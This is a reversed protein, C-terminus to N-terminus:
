YGVITQGDARLRLQSYITSNITDNLWTVSGDAMSFFAGNRHNSSAIYGVDYHISAFNILVTTSNGYTGHYSHSLGTHGCCGGALPAILWIGGDMFNCTQLPSFCRKAPVNTSSRETLLITKSLGDPVRRFPLAAANWYPYSIGDGWYLDYTLGNPAKQRDTVGSTGMGGNVGPRGWFTFSHGNNKSGINIGYNTRGFGTNNDRRRGYTPNTPCEFQRNARKALTDVTTQGDNWHRTFNNTAKGVEDYIAASDCFPLIIASWPLGPINDGFATSTSTWAAGDPLNDWVAAPFKGNANAFNLAALSLERINNSCTSQRASERAAQVAPLLLGVLTGIIMIVVLLEVLTFGHLRLRRGGFASRAVPLM